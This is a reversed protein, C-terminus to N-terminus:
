ILNFRDRIGRIGSVLFYSKQAALRLILTLVYYTTFILFAQLRIPSNEDLAINFKDICTATM